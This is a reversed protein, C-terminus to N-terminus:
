GDVAKGPSRGGCSHPLHLGFGRLDGQPSGYKKAPTTGMDKADSVVIVATKGDLGELDQTVADAASPLPSPGGAKAVKSLAEHYSVKDFDDIDGLLHTDKKFTDPDGGFIRLGSRIGMNEPLTDGLHGVTATAVDFKKWQQVGEEMSSSADLIVLLNRTKLARGGADLDVPSFPPVPQYSTACASLIAAVAITSLLKFISIRRKM